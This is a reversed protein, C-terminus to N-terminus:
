TQAIEDESRTRQGKKGVGDLSSSVLYENPTRVLKPAYSVKRKNPEVWINDESFM